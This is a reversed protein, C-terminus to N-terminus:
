LGVVTKFIKKRLDSGLRRDDDKKKGVIHPTQLGEEGKRTSTHVVGLISKTDEQRMQDRNRPIPMKKEPITENKKKKGLLYPRKKNLGAESRFKTKREPARSEEV